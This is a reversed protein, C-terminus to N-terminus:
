DEHTKTMFIHQTDNLTISMTDRKIDFQKNELKQYSNVSLQVGLYNLTVM